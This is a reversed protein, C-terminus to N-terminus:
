GFEEYDKVLNIMSGIPQGTNSRARLHYALDRLSLSQGFSGTISGELSEIQENQQAPDTSCFLISLLHNFVPDVLTMQGDDAAPATEVGDTMRITPYHALIAAEVLERNTVRRGEEDGKSKALRSIAHHISQEIQVATTKTKTANSM